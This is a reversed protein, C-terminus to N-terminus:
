NILVLLDAYDFDLKKGSATDLFYISLKNNINSQSDNHMEVYVENSIDNAAANSGTGGAFQNTNQITYLYNVKGEAEISLDYSDLEVGNICVMIGQYSVTGLPENPLTYVCPNAAAATVNAVGAFGLTSALAQTNPNLSIQCNQSTASIAFNINDLSVAGVTYMVYNNGSEFLKDVIENSLTIRTRTTGGAAQVALTVELGSRNFTFTDGVTPDIGLYTITGSDNYFYGTQDYGIGYLEDSGNALWQFYDGVAVITAAFGDAGPFFSSEILAASETTATADYTGVGLAVTGGAEEQIALINPDSLDYADIPYSTTTWRISTTTGVTALTCTTRLADAQGTALNCARTLEALLGDMTYQGVTLPCPVLLSATGAGFQLVNTGSYINYLSNTPLSKLQINYNKLAIRSRAPIVIPQKGYGPIDTTSCANSKFRLLRVM